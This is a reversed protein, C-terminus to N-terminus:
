VIVDMGTPVCRIRLWLHESTACRRSCVNVMGRTRVRGAVWRPVRVLELRRTPNVDFTICWREFAPEILAAVLQNVLVSDNALREVTLVRGAEFVVGRNALAKAVRVPVDNVDVSTEEFTHALWM